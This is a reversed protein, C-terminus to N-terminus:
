AAQKLLGEAALAERVKPRAAVRDLFARLNTYPALDVSHYNAWNVVTFLYGDAVTFAEGTLYPRSALVKDLYAFRQALKDKTAQRVADPTAPNWLPAFGKHIESTIFTLWEHLRHREITGTAPALGAQPQGDAV